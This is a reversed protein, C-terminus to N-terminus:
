KRSGWLGGARDRRPGRVHVSARNRRRKPHKSAGLFSRGPTSRATREGGGSVRGRSSRLPPPRGFGRALTSRVQRSPWYSREPPVVPPDHQVRHVDQPRRGCPKRVGRCASLQLCSDRCSSWVVISARGPARCEAGHFSRSGAGSICRSVSADVPPIPERVAPPAMDV